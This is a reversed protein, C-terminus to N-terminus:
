NQLLETKQMGSKLSAAKWRYSRKKSIIFIENQPPFEFSYTEM